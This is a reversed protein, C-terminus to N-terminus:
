GIKESLLSNHSKQLLEGGNEKSCRIRIEKYRARLADGLENIDKGQAMFEGDEADFCYLCQGHEEIKVHVVPSEEEDEEAAGNVIDLCHQQVKRIDEPAVGADRMIETIMYRTYISHAKWGIYVAAAVILITEIM